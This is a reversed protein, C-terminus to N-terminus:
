FARAVIHRNSTPYAQLITCARRRERGHPRVEFLAKKSFELFRLAIDLGAKQALYDAIEDLDSDAKARIVYGSRM